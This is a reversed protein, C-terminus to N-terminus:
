AARRVKFGPLATEWESPKYRDVRHEALNVLDPNTLQPYMPKGILQEDRIFKDLDIGIYHETMGANKHHLLSQVQRLAGDYGMAKLVDFRARAGARRLTHMGEGKEGPLKWGMRDLAENALKHTEAVMRDPRPRGTGAVSGWHGRQARPPSFAPFLYWSTDLYGCADQYTMLWQRMEQDLESTIPMLDTAVDYRGKKKAVNVRVRGQELNLDAIRIQSLEISRSLLYIAGAFLARNRPSGAQDLLVPFQSVPLRRRETVTYTPAPRDEMPDYKIYSRKRAWQFFNQYVYHYNAMSRGGNTQGLDIFVDDILTDGISDMFMNGGAVELLRTTAVRDSNLASKGKKLSVRYREYATIAENLRMKPM